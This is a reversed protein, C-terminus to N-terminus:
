SAYCGEDIAIRYDSYSGCEIRTLATEEKRTLLRTTQRLNARFIQERNAVMWRRVETKDRESLMPSELYEEIIAVCGGRVKVGKVQKGVHLHLTSRPVGLRKAMQRYSLGELRLSCARNLLEANM